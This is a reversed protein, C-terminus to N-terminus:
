PYEYLVRYSRPPQSEILVYGGVPWRLHPSQAPPIAGRAQRALTVHPVLRERASRQELAHLAVRLRHHLDSLAAPVVSPRLVAVDNSWAEALDLTLEFPEFSVALGQVLSAVRERPVAGLFHLTLHLKDRQVRRAGKPWAWREAHALVADRVDDDPWLGLFLRAFAPPAAEVENM